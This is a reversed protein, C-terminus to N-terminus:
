AADGGGIRPLSYGQEKALTPEAGIWAHCPACVGLWRTEDLLADGVRGAKHHIQDAQGGCRGCWPNDTLFRERKRLYLRKNRRSRRQQPTTM